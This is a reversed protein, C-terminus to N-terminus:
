TADDRAFPPPGSTASRPVSFVPPGYLRQNESCALERKPRENDRTADSDTGGSNISGSWHGDWYTLPFILYDWGVGVVSGFSLCSSLLFVAIKLVQMKKGAVRAVEEYTGDEVM